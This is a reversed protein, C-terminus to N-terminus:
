EEGAYRQKHWLHNRVVPANGVTAPKFPYTQAIL